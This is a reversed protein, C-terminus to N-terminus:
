LNSGCPKRRNRRQHSLRTEGQGPTTGGSPNLPIATGPLDHRPHPGHDIRRERVPPEQLVVRAEESAVVGEMRGGFESGAGPQRSTVGHVTTESTRHCLGWSTRSLPDLWRCQPRHWREISTTKTMNRGPRVPSKLSNKSRHLMQIKTQPAVRARKLAWARAWGYRQHCHFSHPSNKTAARAPLPDAANTPSNEPSTIHNQSYPEGLSFPPDLYIDRCRWDYRRLLYKFGGPM